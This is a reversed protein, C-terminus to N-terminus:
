YVQRLGARAAKQSLRAVISAVARTFILMNDTRRNFTRAAMSSPSRQAVTTKKCFGVKVECPNRLADTKEFQGSIKPNLCGTKVAKGPAKGRM